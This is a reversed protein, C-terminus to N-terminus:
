LKSVPAIDMELLQNSYDEFSIFIKPTEVITYQKQANLNYPQVILSRNHGGFKGLLSYFNM